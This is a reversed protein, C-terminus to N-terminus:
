TGSREALERKRAEKSRVLERMNAGVHKKGRQTALDIQKKRERFRSKQQETTQSFCLHCSVGDEYYEHQKDEKSLPYGCSHCLDYSGANLEHDVSVRHDFVFCEGQWLSDEAPVKELYNLIGGDLHYVEEVGQSLAYGTSKECRIGGTCYMAIKKVGGKEIVDDLYTKFEMFSDVQPDEAGNFIGIQTEYKNRTDLLLVDDAQVLENWKEPAVYTGVTKHPGVEKNHFTVIEQKQKVKFRHFPNKGCFSYKPQLEGFWPELGAIFADIHADEGAITSNVGEDAVILTGFVEYQERLAKISEAVQAPNDLAMFKYFAAVKM